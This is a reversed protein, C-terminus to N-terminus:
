AGTKPTDTFAYSAQSIQAATVTVDGTAGTGNITFTVDVEAHDDAPSSASLETLYGQMYRGAYKNVTASPDAINAEWIDLLASDDMWSELDAYEIDGGISLLATATIEHEMSGPTAVPGDKTETTDADRSKTRENETTFAICAGATTAADANKRFLYLIKKGEVVTASFLQLNMLYKKKM